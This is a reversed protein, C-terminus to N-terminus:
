HGLLASGLGDLELLVARTSRNSPEIASKHPKIGIRTDLPELPPVPSSLEGTSSEVSRDQGTKFVNSKQLYDIESYNM